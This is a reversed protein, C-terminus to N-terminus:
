NINKTNLLILEKKVTDIETGVKNIEDKIMKIKAYREAVPIQIDKEIKDIQSLLTTLTHKCVLLRTSLEIRTFM